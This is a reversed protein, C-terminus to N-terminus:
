RVGMNDLLFWIDGFFCYLMVFIFVVKIGLFGLCIEVIVSFVLLIVFIIEDMVFIVNVYVWWIEEDFVVVKDLFYKVEEESEFIVVEDFFFM